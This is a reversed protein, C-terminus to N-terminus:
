FRFQALLGYVFQHKHVAAKGLQPIGGNPIHWMLSPILSINERVPINFSAGIQAYTFGDAGGLPHDLAFALKADLTLPIYIKGLVYFHLPFTKYVGPWIFWGPQPSWKGTDGFHRIAVYPTVFLTQIFDVQGDFIWSDDNFEDIPTLAFYSLRLDLAIQEWKKHWGVYVDTEDGFDNGVEGDFVGTSNWIGFYLNDRYSVTLNNIM